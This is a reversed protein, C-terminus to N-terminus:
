RMEYFHFLTCQFDRQYNCKKVIDIDFSCIFSFVFELTLM